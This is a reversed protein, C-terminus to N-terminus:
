LMLVDVFRRTDIKRNQDLTIGVTTRDDGEPVNNVLHTKRRRSTVGPYILLDGLGDILQPVKAVELFSRVVKGHIPDLRRLLEAELDRIHRTAKFSM